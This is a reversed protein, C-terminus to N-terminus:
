RTRVASIQSGDRLYSKAVRGYRTSTLDDYTEGTVTNFNVSGGESSESQPEGGEAQEWLHATLFKTFDDVNGEILSLTSSRGSYIDQAQREAIGLMEDKKANSLQTWGTKDLAEVDARTVAM